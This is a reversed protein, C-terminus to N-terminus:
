ALRLGPRWRRGALVSHRCRRRCGRWCGIWSRPPTPQLRRRPQLSLPAAAAAQALCPHWSLPCGPDPKWPALLLHSTHSHQTPVLPLLFPHLSRPPFRSRPSGLRPLHPHRRLCLHACPAPPPLQPLTRAIPRSASPAGPPQQRHCPLPCSCRPPAPPALAHCLPCRAPSSAPAWCSSPRCCCTCRRLPHMKAPAVM